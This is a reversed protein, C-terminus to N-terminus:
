VVKGFYNEKVLIFRLIGQTVHRILLSGLLLAGLTMVQTALPAHLFGRVLFALIGEPHEFAVHFGNALVREVFVLRALAYIIFSLVAVEAALVPLFRRWLWVRYIQKLITGKFRPPQSVKQLAFENM